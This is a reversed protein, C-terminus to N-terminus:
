MALADPAGGGSLFDNFFLPSVPPAFCLRVFEHAAVEGAEPCCRRLPIGLLRGPVPACGGIRGFAAYDFHHLLEHALCMEMLLDATVFACGATALLQAATRVADPYVEVRREFADYEALFPFGHATRM